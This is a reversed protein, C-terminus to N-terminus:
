LGRGGRGQGTYVGGRLDLGLSIAEGWPKLYHIMTGKGVGFLAVCGVVAVVVLTVVLSVIARVRPNKAKAKQNAM